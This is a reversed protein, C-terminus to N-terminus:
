SLLCQVLNAKYTTPGIFSLTTIWLYYVQIIGVAVLAKWLWHFSNCLSYFNLVILTKQLWHRIEEWGLSVIRCVIYVLEVQVKVFKDRSGESFTSWVGFNVITTLIWKSLNSPASKLYSLLKKRNQGLLVLILCKQAWVRNKKRKCLVKCESLNWPTSKFYSFLKKLNWDLFVWFVNKIGIEFTKQKVHEAGQKKNHQSYRSEFGCSRLKYAFM